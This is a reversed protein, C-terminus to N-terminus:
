SQCHHLFRCKKGDEEYGLITIGLLERASELADADDVGSTAVDFDPIVVAIEKEDTYSFIAPYYYRDEKKM